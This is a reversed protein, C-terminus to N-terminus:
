YSSLYERIKIILSYKTNVGTNKFKIDIVGSNKSYLSFLM